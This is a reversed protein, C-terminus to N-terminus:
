NQRIKELAAKKGCRFFSTKLAIWTDTQRDNHSANIRSLFSLSSPSETGKLPNSAEFFTLCDRSGSQRAM